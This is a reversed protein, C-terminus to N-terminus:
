GKPNATVSSHEDIALSQCYAMAVSMDELMAVLKDLFQSVAVYDSETIWSRRHSDRRGPRM